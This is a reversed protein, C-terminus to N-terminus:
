ATHFNIFHEYMDLSTKKEDEMKKYDVIFQEYSYNEIDDLYYECYYLHWYYSTNTKGAGGNRKDCWCGM